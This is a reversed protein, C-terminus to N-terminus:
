QIGSSMKFIPLYIAMVTVLVLGGIAVIIIPEMVSMIGSIEADVEKAYGMSLKELMPALAGSEEGAAVMGVMIKPFIPRRRMQGAITSGGIVGLRVGDLMQTIVMNGATKGAIDIADIIPVGSQVLTALTQSLRAISAKHIFKGFIPIKLKQQDLTYRGSVTKAWRLFLFLAIGIAAVEYLINSVAFDSIGMLVQTILPLEIDYDEFIGQFKPIIFFIVASLAVLFFGMIFIPYTTASKIKQRLEYETELYSALQGLIKSLEGSREAGHVMSVFLDTFVKPHRSLAVSLAAGGKVDEKVEELAERLTVNTAQEILMELANLITIGSDVLTTLQRCFTALEGISVRKKKAGRAGFLNAKIKKPRGVRVVTLGQDRLMSVLVNPSEAEAVGEVKRGTTDKAIYPYGPM